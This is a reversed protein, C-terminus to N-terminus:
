GTVKERRRRPKDSKPMPGRKKREIVPAGQVEDRGRPVGYFHCRACLPVRNREGEVHLRIYHQRPLNGVHWPRNEISGAIEELTATALNGIRGLGEPDFRVCHSVNGYRDIAMSNLMDLCVGMEPITVEREYNRSGEPAHLPRTAILGPFHAYDERHVEGLLRYIMRPRDSLKMALFRSINDMQRARVEDSDLGVVSITLTDLNGIIEEAKAPLLIANTNFGTICHRFESLADGLRPYLLPEGNFHLQVVTGKPTQKAIDCVMAYDMDGWDCLEPYMAELQRRGCMQCGPVKNCRSTLEINLRAPIM